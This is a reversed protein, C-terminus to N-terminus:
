DRGNAYGIVAYSSLTVSVLTLIGSLISLNTSVHGTVSQSLAFGLLSLWALAMGTKAARTPHLRTQRRRALLVIVSGAIQPLVLLIVVWRPAIADVFFVVLTLLTGIKDVVADFSEGLPSKTGTFSAVLGDAIDCLRGLALAVTGLVFSDEHMRLLGFLVVVLGILTLFNSPTLLGKSRAATKQWMNWRKKPILEWDPRSDARHLDMHAVIVFGDTSGRM